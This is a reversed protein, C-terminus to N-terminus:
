IILAMEMQEQIQIWVVYLVESIGTETILEACSKGIKSKHACPELTLYM